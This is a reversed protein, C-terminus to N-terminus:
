TSHPCSGQRAREGRHEGDNKLIGPVDRAPSPSPHPWRPLYANSSASGRLHPGQGRMVPPPLAEKM